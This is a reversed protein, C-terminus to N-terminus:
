AASPAQTQAHATVAVAAMAALGLRICQQVTKVANRGFRSARRPNEPSSYASPPEFAFACANLLDPQWVHSADETSITRRTGSAACCAERSTPQESHRMQRSM